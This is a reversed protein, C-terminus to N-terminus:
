SPQLVFVGTKHDLHSFRLSLASLDSRLRHWYFCVQSVADDGGFHDSRDNGDVGALNEAVHFDFYLSKFLEVHDCSIKAFIGHSVVGRSM